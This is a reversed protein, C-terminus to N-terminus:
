LSFHRVRAKDKKDTDPAPLPPPLPPPPPPKDEDDEDSFVAGDSCSEDSFPDTPPATPSVSRQNGSSQETNLNFDKSLDTTPSSPPSEM